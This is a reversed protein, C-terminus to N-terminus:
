TQSPPNIKQIIYDIIPNVMDQTPKDEVTSYTEKIKELTTLVFSSYSSGLNIIIKTYGSDKYNKLIEGLNTTVGNKTVTMSVGRSNFAQNLIINMLTIVMNIVQQETTCLKSIEELSKVRVENLAIIELPHDINYVDFYFEDLLEIFFLTDRNIQNAIFYVQNLTRINAAQHKKEYEYVIKRNIKFLAELCYSFTLDDHENYAIIALQRIRGILEFFTKNKKELRVTTTPKLNRFDTHSSAWISFNLREDEIEIFCENVLSDIVKKPSILNNLNIFYPVILAIMLTSWAALSSSITASITGIHIYLIQALILVVFAILYFLNFGRFIKESKGYRSLPLVALSLTFTLAFITANITTLTQLIQSTEASLNTYEM